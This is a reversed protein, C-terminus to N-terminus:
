QAVPSFRKSLPNVPTHDCSSLIMPTSHSPFNFINTSQMQPIASQVANELSFKQPRKYFVRSSNPLQPVNDGASREMKRQKTQSHSLSRSHYENLLMKETSGYLKVHSKGAKHSSRHGGTQHSVLGENLKLSRQKKLPDGDHKTSKNSKIVEAEEIQIELRKFNQKNGVRLDTPSEHESSKYNVLMAKDM